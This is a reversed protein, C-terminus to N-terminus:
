PPSTFGTYITLIASLAPLGLWGAPGSSVVNFTRNDNKLTISQHIRPGLISPVPPSVIYPIPAGDVKLLGITLLPPGYSDIRDYPINKFFITIELGPYNKASEPVNIAFNIINIYSEPNAGSVDLAHLQGDFNLLNGSLDIGSLDVYYIGGIYQADPINLTYVAAGSIDFNSVNALIGSYEPTLQTVNNNRTAFSRQISM